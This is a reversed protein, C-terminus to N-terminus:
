KIYSEKSPLALDLAQNLPQERQAVQLVSDFVTFMNRAFHTPTALGPSGQALLPPPATDGPMHIFM